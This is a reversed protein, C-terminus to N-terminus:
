GGTDLMKMVVQAFEAGRVAYGTHAGPIEVFTSGLRKALNESLPHLPYGRSSTGAAIVIRTAHAKLANTDFDVSTYERLEHEMWYEIAARVQPNNPDRMRKFHEITEPPMCTNFLELAPGIGSKKYVAYTDQMLQLLQQGEAFTPMYRTAPPEFAIVKSIASPAQTMAQLAVIAGSSPGFVAAPTGAVRAILQLADDADTQLRREYDQAGVLSSRAFGRRDYAIVTFRDALVQMMPGMIHATGNGGPILLLPSGSGLSEYYLRAGPVELVGTRVAKPTGPANALVARPLVGTAGLLMAAQVSRLIASRRNLKPKM